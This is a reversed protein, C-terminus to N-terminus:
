VQQENLVITKNIISELHTICKNLTYHQEFYKLGKEGKTSFSKPDKLIELITSYVGEVDDADFSYGCDIEKVMKKVGSGTMTILPKGSAIYSQFRAPITMNLHKKNAKLTLFMADVANYYAPIYDFPVREITTVNDSMQNDAIFKLLNDRESGNGLFVWHVRKDGKFKLMLNYISDYIQTTSLNGAMMIKFGDPLAQIDKLPEGKIPLSWNPFLIINESKIGAFKIIYDRFGESSILIKDSQNYMRHCFYNTIKLPLGKIHYEITSPWLDLVWTYMPIKQMRAVIMGPGAMFAPTLQQVIVCDFKKFISLFFAWISGFIYFAIYGLGIMWYRAKKGRPITFCRYIKIGNKKEIRKKFFGYGDFFVGKPYNPISTLVDVIYGRNHLELAIDNGKFSEPDFHQTVLLVKKKNM